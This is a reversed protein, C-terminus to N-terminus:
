RKLLPAVLLSQGARLLALCASVVSRRLLVSWAAFQRRISASPGGRPCLHSITGFNSFKAKVDNLDTAAVALVLARRPFLRQLNWM